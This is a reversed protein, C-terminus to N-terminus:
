LTTLILLIILAPFDNLISSPICFTVSLNILKRECEETKRRDWYLEEREIIGKTIKLEARSDNTNKCEQWM